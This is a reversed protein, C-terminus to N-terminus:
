FLQHFFSFSVIFYFRHSSSARTIQGLYIRDFLIISQVNQWFVVSLKWSEIIFVSKTWQHFFLKPSYFRLVTGLLLPCFIFFSPFFNHVVLFFFSNFCAFFYYLLFLLLSVFVLRRQRSFIGYHSHYIWVLLLLDSQCLSNKKRMWASAFTNSQAKNQEIENDGHSHTSHM